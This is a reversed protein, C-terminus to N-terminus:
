EFIDDINILKQGNVFEKAKMMNKGQPKIDILRIAMDRTKVVIEKKLSLVTGPKEEGSYSVIESSYIKINEGNITAYAGPELSLGRIKNFINQSFDNFDIKEEERKINPSYVVEDENQPIGLNKLNYIDDMVKLCLDRGVYSLKEFLSTNNDTNEIDIEEKAYIRGADLRSVMEIISIGTKKDGNIISRQIPAGGRYKPLLSAHINIAKKVHNLVEDPVIQGYAATIIMDANTNLIEEYDEKLKIPQFIKIGMKDAFEVVPPKTLIKKRGVLKDPQSVVLVIEHKKCLGELITKAFEPTGMFIIKM